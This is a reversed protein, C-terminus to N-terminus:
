AGEARPAAGSPCAPARDSVADAAGATDLGASAVGLEALLRRTERLPLGVVNTYSGIWGAVLAGDLDQIGYAGAKDLPAGSEVYESVLADPYAAMVVRTVVEATAARGTEADVAAVGTIVDHSRGRLRALMARAEGADRPKGFPQGDLVVVTDAALVTGRAVRGAVARAKRLALEAVAGTTVPVPLSEDVESPVVAFEHGLRRLLECRRPSASALVLM